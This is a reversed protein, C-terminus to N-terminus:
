VIAPPQPKPGSVLCAPPQPKCTYSGLPWVIAPPQPKHTPAWRLPGKRVVATLVYVCPTNAIGSTVPTESQVSISSELGAKWTTVFIDLLVPRCCHVCLSWTQISECVADRVVHVRVHGAILVPQKKRTGFCTTRAQLHVIGRMRHSARVLLRVCRTTHGVGKGRVVGVRVIALQERM